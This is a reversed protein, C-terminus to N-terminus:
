DLYSWSSSCHTTGDCTSFPFLHIMKKEDIIQDKLNKWLHENRTTTLGFTTGLKNIIFFIGKIEDMEPGLYFNRLDQVLLVLGLDAYGFTM